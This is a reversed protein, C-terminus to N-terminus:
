TLVTKVESHLIHMQPKNQGDLLTVLQTSMLQIVTSDLQM